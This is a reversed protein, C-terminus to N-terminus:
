RTFLFLVIEFCAHQQLLLVLRGRTMDRRLLYIYSKHSIKRSSISEKKLNIAINITCHLDSRHTADYQEGTLDM